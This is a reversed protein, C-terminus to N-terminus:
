LHVSHFATVVDKKFKRKIACGDNWENHRFPDSVCLKIVLCLIDEFLLTRLIRMVARTGISTHKNQMKKM